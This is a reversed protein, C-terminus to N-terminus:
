VLTIFIGYSRPGYYIAEVLRPEGFILKDCTITNNIKEKLDSIAEPNDNLSLINILGAKSSSKEKMKERITDVILSNVQKFTRRKGIPIIEGDPDDGMLGVLPIIKLVSGLLAKAKGIRGGRYVYNLDSMVFLSYTNEVIPRSRRVIEVPDQTEKLLDLIRLLVVGVGGSVQRTDINIINISDKFMEKINEAISYTARSLIGSMVVHFILDYKDKNEEVVKILEGKVLSSSKAVINEKKYREILWSATVTDTERYEHDDILVPYKVFRIYPYDIQDFRIGLNDGSIVLVKKEM